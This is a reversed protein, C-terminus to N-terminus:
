QRLVNVIENSTTRYHLVLFLYREEMVEELFQGNMEYKAEINNNWFQMVKCKDVNFFMLWDQFFIM